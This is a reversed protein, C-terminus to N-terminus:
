SPCGSVGAGTEGGLASLRALVEAPDGASELITRASRDGAFAKKLREMEDSGGSSVTSSGRMLGLLDSPPLGTWDGVHALFDSTPIVAGATFRMHQAIMSSHPDRCLKLYAGLEADSLADPDVGQLERHKAIAAPKCNTDWDHLQE